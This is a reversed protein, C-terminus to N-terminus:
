VVRKPDHRVPSPVAMRNMAHRDAAGAVAVPQPATAAIRPAASQPAASRQAAIRGVLEALEPEPPIAYGLLYDALLPDALELFRAFTRRQEASAHPLEARAFRDLIVDLEKMGRRCRWLLRRGEPDLPAAVATAPIAAV